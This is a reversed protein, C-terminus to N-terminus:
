ADAMGEEYRQRQMDAVASFLDEPSAEPGLGYRQQVTAIWEAAESYAGRIADARPYTAVHDLVDGPGVHIFGLPEGCTSCSPPSVPRNM